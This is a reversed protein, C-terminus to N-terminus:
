GDQDRKEKKKQREKKISALLALYVAINMIIINVIRNKRSM